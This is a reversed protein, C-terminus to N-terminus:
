HEAGPVDAQNDGELQQLGSAVDDGQSVGRRRDAAVANVRGLDGSGAHGEVQGVGDDFGFAVIVDGADGDGFHVAVEVENGSRFFM